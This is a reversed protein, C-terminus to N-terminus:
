SPINPRLMLRWEVGTRFDAARGPITLDRYSLNMLLKRAKIPDHCYEGFNNQDKVNKLVRDRVVRSFKDVDSLRAQSSNMNEGALTPKKDWWHDEIKFIKSRDIIRVPTNNKIKRKTKERHIRISDLAAMKEKYAELLLRGRSGQKTGLEDRGQSVKYSSSSSSSSGDIGSSSSKNSNM